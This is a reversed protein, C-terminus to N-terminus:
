KEERTTRCIAAIFFITTVGAGVAAETMSVDPARLILYTVAMTFSYASYIIVAVILDRALVTAVATAVLFVLTILHAITVLDM